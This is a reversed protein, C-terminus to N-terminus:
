ICHMFRVSISM